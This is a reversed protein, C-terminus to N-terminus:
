RARLPDAGGASPLAIVARGPMVDQGRQNMAWTQVSVVADGDDDVFRGDVRGGIRIVDSLYVFGRLECAIHKVFSRDGAWNTLLQGLWCLRQVGVDYSTQAGMQRAAFENYHVAYIPEWAHTQPDRFAWMPHRAYRRLAAGNAALRPIPAAGTAVFAIQDTLGLPGKTVTELDDGAAVDEWPRDRAGRPAESMIEADVANLEDATWPHPLQVARARSRDRAESREIRTVNMLHDAVLDGNQDRYEMRLHDVVSRGAFSSQRPGDFGEYVCRASIRDGARVRRRLTLESSSHFGGIGPWGFQVGSLCCLVWTPPAILSGHCSGAAYAPDTWLPNDDGIGEAFRLISFETAEANARSAGTRLETGAMRRMRELLEGTFTGTAMTEGTRTTDSRIGVTDGQTSM